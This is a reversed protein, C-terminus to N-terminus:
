FIFLSDGQKIAKGEKTSIKYIKKQNSVKVEYGMDTIGSRSYTMYHDIMTVVEATHSGTLYLRLPFYTLYILPLLLLIAVTISTAIISGYKM